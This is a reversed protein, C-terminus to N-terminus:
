SAPVIAGHRTLEDLFASVDRLADDRSVEPFRERLAATLDQPSAPTALREWLRSGTPNLVLASRSTRHYLVVRDGVTSAEVAECRAYSPGVVESPTLPYVGASARAGEPGAPENSQQTCTPELTSWRESSSM